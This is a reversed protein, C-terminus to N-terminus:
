SRSKGRRAPSNPPSPIRELNPQFNVPPFGARALPLLVQAAAAPTLMERAVNHLPFIVASAQTTEDTALCEIGTMRAAEAGGSCDIVAGVKLGNLSVIRDNEVAANELTTNWRTQL